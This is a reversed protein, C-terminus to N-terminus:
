GLFDEYYERAAFTGTELRPGRPSYALQVKSVLPFGVLIKMQLGLGLGSYMFPVLLPRATPASALVREAVAHYVGNIDPVLFQLTGANEYEVISGLNTILQLATEGHEFPFEWVPTLDININQVAEDDERGLRAEGLQTKTLVYLDYTDTQAGVAVQINFASAGRSILSRRSWRLREFNFIWTATPTFIFLRKTTSHYYTTHEYIKTLDLPVLDATIQSSLLQTENGNFLYVGSDSLYAVGQPTLSVAGDHLAGPGEVRLQFDAPRDALGTFSGVWISRRCLVALNNFGLPRLSVIRDAEGTNSVLLEYGAGTGLWDEPDSSAATWVIGLPQVQSDVTVHGAFIRGAFTAYSEAPKGEAIITPAAADPARRFVTVGDSFILDGGFNANAYPKAQAVIGHNIWVTNGERRVGLFPADFFILEAAYDLNGQVLMQDPNRGAAAFDEVSLVGPSRRLRDKDDPEIDVAYPSSNEPVDQRSDRVEYGGSFDSFSVVQRRPVSGPPMAVGDGEHGYGRRGLRRSFDNRSM